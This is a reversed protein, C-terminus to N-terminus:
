RGMRFIDGSKLHHEVIRKLGVFTGNGSGLDILHVGDDKLIVQAHKRSVKLDDLQITSKPSRGITVIGNIPTERGKLSGSLLILRDVTSM